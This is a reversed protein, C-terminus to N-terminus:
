LDDGHGCGRKFFLLAQLIEGTWLLLGGVVDGSRTGEPAINSFQKNM